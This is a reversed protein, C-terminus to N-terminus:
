LYKKIVVIPGPCEQEHCSICSKVLLNFNSKREEPNSSTYYVNLDRLFKESYQQHEAPLDKTKTVKATSVKKFSKPFPLQPESKEIRVKEAKVYDLMKTMLKAMQSPKEYSASISLFAFLSFLFIISKNRDLKM